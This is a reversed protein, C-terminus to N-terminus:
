AVDEESFGYIANEYGKVADRLESPIRVQMHSQEKAHPHASLVDTTM